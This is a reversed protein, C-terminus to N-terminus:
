FLNEDREYNTLARATQMSTIGVLESISKRVHPFIFVKAVIEISVDTEEFRNLKDEHFIFDSMRSNPNLVAVPTIGNQEFAKKFTNVIYGYHTCNLSIILPLAPNNIKNIAEAVYRAVAIRTERSQYGQEIKDALDGCAISIIKEPQVGREILMRKHTAKFITTDTAFIIIYAKPESFYKEMILNVGEEVMGIVPITTDTSFSTDHYIVSLTNCGILILDPKFNKHLSNLVKNFIRVKEKNTKLKNYGSKIDFLANFFIIHVKRFVGTIKIKEVVDAAISVGGLGSDTVAITVEEKNFFHELNQSMPKQINLKVTMSM